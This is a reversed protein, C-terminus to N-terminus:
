RYHKPVVFAVPTPTWKLAATLSVRDHSDNWAWGIRCETGLRPSGAATDEADQEGRLRPTRSNKVSVRFNQNRTTEDIDIM